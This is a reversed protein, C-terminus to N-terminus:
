QGTTTFPMTFTRSGHQVRLLYLGAVLDRTDFSAEGSAHVGETLIRGDSAHIAWTYSGTVPTHWRISLQDSAPNPFVSPSVQRAQVGTSFEAVLVSPETIIPPNFDFYINAINAIVTGPALPLTPRIRFTVQGHSAAENVNSDPLLIDDFRFRIVNGYGLDWTFPHSAAGVRLSAPDLTAALTDSVLVNFATDTGTNQFRITYDIWEDEDMFYLAESTRSSTAALKDNPDYSGTVLTSVTTSNNAPNLDLNASSLSWDASLYTGILAVDAPVQVRVQFWPLAYPAVDPLNWILTQGAVLDPVPDASIISTIADATFTATVPGSSGYNV